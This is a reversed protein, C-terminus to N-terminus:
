LLNETILKDKKVDVFPHAVGYFAGLKVEGDILQLFSKPNAELFGIGYKELEQMLISTYFITKWLNEVSIHIRAYVLRFMIENFNLSDVHELVVCILGNKKDVFCEHYKLVFPHNISSFLRIENLFINKELDTSDVLDIAYISFLAGATKLSEVTFTTRLGVQRTIQLVKYNRIKKIDTFRGKPAGPDQM